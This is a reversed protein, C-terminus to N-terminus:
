DGRERIHTDSPLSMDPSASRPALDRPDGSPSRKSQSEHSVHALLHAIRLPTDIAHQPLLADLDALFRNAREESIGSGVLTEEGLRM